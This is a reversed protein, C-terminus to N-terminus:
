RGNSKGEKLKLMKKEYDDIQEMTLWEPKENDAFSDHLKRMEAIQKEVSHFYLHDEYGNGNGLFYDCDSKYRGLMSYDFARPNVKYPEDCEIPETVRYGPEGCIDDPCDKDRYAGTHLDLEGYGNNADFFLRGNENEYVPTDIYGGFGIFKVKM